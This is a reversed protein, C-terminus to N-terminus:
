TKRGFARLNGIRRDLYWGPTRVSIAYLTTAPQPPVSLSVVDGLAVDVFKQREEPVAIGCTVIVQFPWDEIVRHRRLSDSGQGVLDVAHHPSDADGPAERRVRRSSLEDLFGALGPAGISDGFLSQNTLEGPIAGRSVARPTVSVAVALA